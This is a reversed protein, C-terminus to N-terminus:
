YSRDRYKGYLILIEEIDQKPVVIGSCEELEKWLNIKVALNLMMDDQSFHRDVSQM